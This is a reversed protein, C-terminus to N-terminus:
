DAIKNTVHNSNGNLWKGNAEDGGFTVTTGEVKEHIINQAEDNNRWSWDNIQTITYDGFLLGYVTVSSNGVVTVTMAKGTTNNKIEYVYVQDGDCANEREITISGNKPVFKAYFINRETDSLKTKDPIFENTESDITGFGELKINCGEDAYWGAFEYNENATPTSGKFTGVGTIVELTRTLTGGDEPVAVYEATYETPSYYFIINNQEEKERIIITQTKNSVCTYGPINVATVPATEQGYRYGSIDTQHAQYATPKGDADLETPVPDTTGYLYYYINYKYENRKYFIYLETGEKTVKIEYKGDKYTAKGMNSSSSGTLGQNSILSFGAFEQPVIYVNEGVTGIGEIRTESEEYGGTGDIKYQNRTYDTADIKELMFHVAYYQSTKNPVYYFKIINEATGVYNGNEDKEVSIVLRKYFADPIMNEYAKFRETVVADSTTKVEQDMVVGTEKNIYQITYNINEARVYYFTYVNHVPNQDDEEYQVTISHSGVTPFYGKNYENYLQGYPEGAKAVFTKTSGAYAFGTTDNAVKTNPNSELVYSVKYPQPSHSSWDAFINLDKKIFMDLPSFAKKAGNEMYFWGSFVLSQGNETKTPNDVSGIVNGHVINAYTKFPTVSSPDAEYALMEDYSAFFNVNHYEPVWKAYLTLNGNPMILKDWNVETGPFCGPTTYWGGFSYANPELTDPYPPKFNRLLENDVKFEKFPQEYMVNSVTKVVESINQFSLTYRNRTYYLFQINSGSTGSGTGNATMGTIEKQSLNSSTNVEQYYLESKDYYIGGQLKRDNGNAGSTQDFSEFMYYLYRKSLSSGSQYSAYKIGDSTDCMETTMNVRKSVFTSSLGDLKWGYFNTNTFFAATPWVDGITQEYKATLYYLRNSETGPINETGCEPDFCYTYCDDTHVHNVGCNYCDNGHTHETGGYECVASNCGTGHTHENLNEKCYVCGNGHTHETGGYKCVAGNCGIGHSHETINCTCNGNGHEHIGDCSLNVTTFWNYDNIQYWYGNAGLKVYYTANWIEGIRVIGYQDPTAGNLQNLLNQDTVEKDNIEPKSGGYSQTFTYCNEEHYSHEKQCCTSSHTHPEISCCEATHIHEDKICCGAGHTHETINCCGTNHQHEVITCTLECNEDHTHTYGCDLIKCAGSHTHEPVDSKITLSGTFVITYVNRTYYVNVITSGDGKVVVNKDTLEENYTFYKKEDVNTGDIKKTTISTPIDDKGSVETKSKAEVTKHGWYSYDNDDANEKWYVVTYTTDTVSWIARYYRGEAPINSPLPDAIGDGKDNKGDGNTDETLLDWGSFIYGPKVPDNVVFPADYKAYIPDVGFGGDLDFMFLFYNRDYYCEFVTSGDAAVAEPIHYMKSFGTTDGDHALFYEEEIITGTEAKDQHYLAANETYLDDNVNQFFYRVAFPVEIAKYFVTIVINENVAYEKFNIINATESDDLNGDNNLDRYPAFGIFTPSVVDQIFDTGKEITAVYPSYINREAGGVKYDKWDLYKITITVYEGEGEGDANNRVATYSAVEEEFIEEESYEETETEIVEIDSVLVFEEEAPQPEEEEFSVFVRVENSIVWEEGFLAKSRIYADGSVEIINKVLAYSIECEAETKDYIDAWVDNERNVLVQWKIEDPQEEGEFVAEVTKKEDYNIAIKEIYRGNHEIVLEDPRAFVFAIPVFLSVLMVASLVAAILRKTM